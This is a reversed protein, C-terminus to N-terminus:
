AHIEREITAFYSDSIQQFNPRIQPHYQIYARARDCALCTRHGRKAPAAVLNPPTLPHGRPCRTKNVNHDTGHERKDRMNQSRTGYALNEARNDRHDGNLHRVDQGAPRPGIFAEAVLQHVKRQKFTGTAGHKISVLQYPLISWTAAKLVRNVSRVRGRNSVEYGPYEPIVKWQETM